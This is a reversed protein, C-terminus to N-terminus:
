SSHNGVKYGADLLTKERRAQEMDSRVMMEILGEFTTSPKWGLKRRAKGADGLLVDVETPRFYKRDIEVHDRYDLGLKEFVKETFECVSHTEGTAIVYDDPTEQQLMLWM